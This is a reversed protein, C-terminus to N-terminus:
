ALLVAIRRRLIPLMEEEFWPNLTLWRNNHWSPHPLPVMDSPMKLWAAVAQTVDRFDPLYAKQALAGVLLTLRIDPM